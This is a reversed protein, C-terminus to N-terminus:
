IKEVMRAILKEVRHNVTASPALQDSIWVFAVLLSVDDNVMDGLFIALDIDKRAQLEAYVSRRAYGLETEDDVQPDGVFAVRLPQAGLPLAALLLILLICRRM